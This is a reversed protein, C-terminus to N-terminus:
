PSLRLRYYQQTNTPIITLPSTVNSVDSYAGAVNTASQLIGYNWILQLQGAGSNQWTLPGVFGMAQIKVIAASSNPVTVVCQGNTLSGLPTWLGQFPANNTIFAGGLTVGNTAGVGSTATLAMAQVTGSVFGVPLIQVMADRANYGNEKNIITVYLDPGAGVAYATLNLGDNNTLALPMVLGHGGVDFAKQGYGIPFIQYNSASDYFVTGNYKGLFTHFNVGNCGHAAWWHASDLAFLSSAFSNNGGWIGPYPAVFSNFETARFPFGNSIAIGATANFHSPYYSADWTPSLMGAIVQQPTLGTSTGGFYFHSTIWTVYPSGVQANAFEGAWTDGSDGGGFNAGPVSNTITQAFTTWKALYSSFNTIQPDGGAYSDPENGIDICTLYQNYNSWTYGAIAADTAPNGNELQVSYVVKVAAAQAFRFLADIDANTPTYQPITGNVRDVSTGGIRLNKIGINTFLTVLQTNTSDFMYGAVGVGNSLLNGTEFSLGLFDPPIALGPAQTNVSVAVASVSPLSFSVTQSQTTLSGPDTVLLYYNGINNTGVVSITYSTNTANPIAVFPGAGNAQFYWQCTLPGSGVIVTTFSAQSGLTASQSQPQVVCTPPILTPGFRVGALMERSSGTALLTAGSAAGTDTIRLLRNSSAEATTVYIIAGTVGSGWNTAAGFDVTLARAGVTSGTGMQLTYSYSYGPFGYPGTGSADWRQVGGAKSSTSGFTGNDAIYVTKRDPSFAFDTPSNTEAVVLSATALSSPLGSCAYLGIPSVGVDSYVLNSGAVQAVRTGGLSGAVSALGSGNAPQFNINCYKVANASGAEGATYYNTANGDIDVASHVQHNGASYLGSNTWVLAYNGFANVTGIGRWDNGGNGGPEASVDSGSFPYGLCYGIFSLSLGTPARALFAEYGADNGPSVNSGAILLSSSGTPLAASNSSGAGYPLGFGEDPIQISNLYTGNTTLQDLYLTNGTAGSLPQAGDGVRAVILNTPYLPLIGAPLVNLTVNTSQTSGKGDTVVVYYAGANSSQIDALVLANSTSLVTANNTQHWAYSLTGSSATASVSYAVHDGARDSLVRPSLSNITPQALADTAFLSLAAVVQIQHRCVRVPNIVYLNFTNRRRRLLEEEGFVWFPM